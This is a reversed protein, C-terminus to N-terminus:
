PENAGNRHCPCDPDHTATSAGDAHLLIYSHGRYEVKASYDQHDSIVYFICVGMWVICLAILILSLIAQLKKKM